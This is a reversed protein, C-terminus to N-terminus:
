KNSEVYLNIRDIRLNKTEIKAYLNTFYKM